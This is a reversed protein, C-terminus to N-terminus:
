GAKTKQRKGSMWDNWRKRLGTPEDENHTPLTPQTTVTYVLANGDETLWVKTKHSSVQKSDIYGLNMLEKYRKRATEESIKLQKALLKIYDKIMLNSSEISFCNHEELIQLCRRKEYNLDHYDVDGKIKRQLFKLQIQWFESLDDYAHKVDDVTINSRGHCAAQICSM